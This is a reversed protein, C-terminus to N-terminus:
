FRLYTQPEPFVSVFTDVNSLRLNSLFLYERDSFFLKVLFLLVYFLEESLRQAERNEQLNLREGEKRSLERNVTSCKV